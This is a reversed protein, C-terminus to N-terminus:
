LSVGEAWSLAHYECSVPTPVGIDEGGQEMLQQIRRIRKLNGYVVRAKGGVSVERRSQPFDFVLEDHVQMVMHGDFGDGPDERWEGLQADCRIMAMQMWEMATSQVHYNLPVTPKIRGYETRTCLIPYGRQPNIAKSPMTEVYGNKEAFAIMRQNLAEQKSFRAKIMAQAGPIGYTRDATGMGDERDVAGYQVAFNGNKVRQYLTSAYKKKFIRGDLVGQENVCEEFKQKHLLHAILLHNSGFYPPEDPREFLAIFAEEGSEYAPIRLEINKADLSWWERGPAPGFARRLNFDEKKSINQENPMSSSWRLTATGTPNLSPHLVFWGPIVRKQRAVVGAGEGSSLRQWHRVEDGIGEGRIGSAESHLGSSHVKGSRRDVEKAPPGGRQGVEGEKAHRAHQGRPNRSVSSSPQCVDPQRVQATSQTRNPDPRDNARLGTQIRVGDQGRDVPLAEHPQVNSKRAVALVHRNQGGEEHIGSLDDYAELPLWFKKYGDLYNIATDRKRKALLNHVFEHAVTQPDLVALYYELADKGLTPSATRARKNYVPDLNLVDRFMARLSDNVGGKPLTLEHGMGAAIEFCRGAARRSEGVYEERQRALAAESVTVGRREMRYAIPMAQKRALYIEWLGRRNLEREQVRWLAITISSDINAYDRLAAWWPSEDGGFQGYMAPDHDRWHKVLARPLWSDYAKVKGRASPMDPRGAEAIAWSAVPDLKEETLPLLLQQKGKRARQGGGAEEKKRKTDQRKAKLRAQQVVRRAKATISQLEKEYPEIDQGLYQVAMSTLDHPRNSALVHGAILTDETRDWPWELGLRGLGLADVLAAVDFKSNQMVLGAAEQVVGCIELADEKPVIPERSLPDVDWEWWQQEGGEDCVTVFFPKAGHRFDVGTTESDLSIM